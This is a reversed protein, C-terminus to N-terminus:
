IWGFYQCAYEIGDETCDKTIFTAVEKLKDIANGMAISIPAQKMMSLDNHGDGFVVIDEEKGGVLDIMELIGKYKDDPEIIFDMPHYRAYNLQAKQLSTLQKEEGKQIGIYMKHIEPYQYYDNKGILKLDWHGEFEPCYQFFDDSHSYITPSDDIAIGIRIDKLLCEDIIMFAKERDLPDIHLVEGNLVIGNGGACVVNQIGTEEMAQKAMSYSRGTAIAVFHGNEQLKKLTRHTSPLVIGGPNHNTLTGDIDFFIYKM